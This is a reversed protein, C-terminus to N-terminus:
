SREVLNGMCVVLYNHMKWGASGAMDLRDSKLNM